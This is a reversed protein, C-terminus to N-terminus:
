RSADLEIRSESGDLYSAAATARGAGFVQFRPSRDLPHEDSGISFDSGGTRLLGALIPAAIYSLIM